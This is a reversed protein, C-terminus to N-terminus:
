YLSFCHCLPEPLEPEIEARKVLTENASLAQELWQCSHWFTGRGQAAKRVGRDNSVVVPWPMGQRSEAPLESWQRLIRDITRDARDQEGYTSPPAVRVCLRDIFWVKKSVKAWTKRLAVNGGPPPQDLVLTTAALDPLFKPLVQLAGILRKPYTTFMRLHMAKDLLTYQGDPRHTGSRYRHSLVNLGDVILHYQKDTPDGLGCHQPIDASARTPLHRTSANAHASPNVRINTYAECFACLAPKMAVALQCLAVAIGAPQAWAIRRPRAKGATCGWVKQSLVVSTM